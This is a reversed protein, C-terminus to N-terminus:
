VDEYWIRDRAAVVLKRLTVMNNEGTPTGTPIGDDDGEYSLTVGTPLPPDYKITTFYFETSRAIGFDNVADLLWYYILNYYDFKAYIYPYDPDINDNVLILSGSETGLYLDYSDIVGGPAEWTLTKNLTINTAEHSPTPTTVAGPRADFNWIDGETTGVNNIADIEWYIVTNWNIENEGIYAHMVGEEDEETTYPVVYSTDEQEESVLYLNVSDGVWVDYSDAGGGDEWSLTLDSFDVETNNNGPTLNIPKEPAGATARISVTITGPTGGWTTYKSLKLVVSTITYTSGATFTEATWYQSYFQSARDYADPSFTYSDKEVESAKTKFWCDSTESFSWSGGSNNSTCRSGDVYGNDVTTSWFVEADGDIEARAVIAYKVGETLETGDGLTIEREEWGPTDGYEPLTSGNTTGVCLDNGTPDGIAM